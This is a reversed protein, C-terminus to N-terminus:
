GPLGPRASDVRRSARALSRVTQPRAADLHTALALFLQATTLADGLAHHPRHVPLGLARALVGLPVAARGDPRRDEPLWLAGLRATDLVPERLRVGRARLVPRLFGREVWAAHAVLIRGGMAELLPDLAAPAEPAAALDTPRIGHVRISDATPSRNPRVLGYRAGAALIRGGDVPVAGFAIIEDRRPDLGTTELDVVCFRVERWPSRGAPRPGAAYAAAAAGLPRRRAIM